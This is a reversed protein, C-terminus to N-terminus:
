WSFKILGWFLSFQKKKRELPITEPTEVKIPDKEVPKTNPVTLEGNIKKNQKREMAQRNQLEIVKRAHFPEVKSISVTWHGKSVSDIYGVYRMLNSLTATVKHEKSIKQLDQSTVKGKQSRIQDVIEQMSLTYAQVTKLSTKRM